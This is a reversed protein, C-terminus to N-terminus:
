GITQIEKSNCKGCFVENRLEFQKQAVRVWVQKTISFKHDCRFTNVKNQLESPGLALVRRALSDLAGDKEAKKVFLKKLWEKTKEKVKQFWSM